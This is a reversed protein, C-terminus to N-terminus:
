GAPALGATALEPLLPRQTYEDVLDEYGREVESELSDWAGVMEAVTFTKRWGRQHLLEGVEAESSPNM